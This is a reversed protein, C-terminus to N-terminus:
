STIANKYWKIEIKKWDQTELSIVDIRWENFNIDCQQLYHYVSETLVKKKKWNVSEEPFGFKRNSRTKVEFFILENSQQAIIDIEGYPTYYNREIIKFGKKRLYETTFDEGKNGINKRYGGM